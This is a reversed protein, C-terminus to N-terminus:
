GDDSGGRIRDHRALHEGADTRGRIARGNPIRVRRAARADVKGHTQRKAM